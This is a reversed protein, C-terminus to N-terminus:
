KIWKKLDVHESLPTKNTIHDEFHAAWYPALSAGKTGLGNFIGINSQQPHFGIFPYRHTNTPRIAARHAVVEVDLALHHKLHILFEKKIGATTKDSTARWEYNSGVWYNGNALPILNTKGKIVKTIEHNPLSVELAEGKALVWPLENFLHHTSDWHGRCFIIKDYAKEVLDFANINKKNDIFCENDILYQRYSAILLPLDVQAGGRVEGVDYLNQLYRIDPEKDAPYSLYHKTDEAGCRAVWENHEKETEHLWLINQEHWIKIGLLTELESYVAKAFPLLTDVMNSKVIRRGTVPNILGAAVKSAATPFGTDMVDVQHGAKKLTHCLVTGALGQGIILINKKM